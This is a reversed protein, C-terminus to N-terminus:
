TGLNKPNPLLLANVSILLECVTENEHDVNVPLIWEWVHGAQRSRNLLPTRRRRAPRLFQFNEWSLYFGPVFDRRVQCPPDWRCHAPFTSRIIRLLLTFCSRRRMGSDSSWLTGDSVQSARWRVTICYSDSAYIWEPLGKICRAMFAIKVAFITKVHLLCPHCVVNFVQLTGEM